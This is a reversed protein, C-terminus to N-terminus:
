PSFGNMVMIWILTLMNAIILIIRAIILYYAWNDKVTFSVQFFLFKIHFEERMKSIEDGKNNKTKM